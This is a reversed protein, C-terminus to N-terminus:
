ISVVREPTDAFRRGVGWRIIWRGLGASESSDRHAELIPVSLEQRVSLREFEYAGDACLRREVDYIGVSQKLAQHALKKKVPAIDRAKYFSSRGRWFAHVV